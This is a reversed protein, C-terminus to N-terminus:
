VARIPQVLRSLRANEAELERIRDEKREVMEALDDRDESLREVQEQRRELKEQALDRESERATVVLRLRDIEDLLEGLFASVDERGDKNLETAIEEARELLKKM